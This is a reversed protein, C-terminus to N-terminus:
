LQVTSFTYWMYVACFYISSWLVSLQVAVLNLHCSEVFGWLTWRLVMKVVANNHWVTVKLLPKKKTNWDGSRILGGVAVWILCNLRSNCTIVAVMLRARPHDDPNKGKFSQWVLAIDQQVQQCSSIWFASLKLQAILLMERQLFSKCWCNTEKGQRKGCWKSMWM